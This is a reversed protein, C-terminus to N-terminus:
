AVMATGVRSYLYGNGLMAHAGLFVKTVNMTTMIYNLSTILAYQTDIGSTGLARALNKGEFRPRSDIVCVKFKKGRKHAELLAQQVVSSKAYTVIVDGDRIKEAASEAIVRGAAMVKEQIFADIRETLREKAEEDSIDIPSSSIEVKLWRIANRVSTANPRAANLYQIQPSLHHNLDRNLSAGPPTTYDLIVQK